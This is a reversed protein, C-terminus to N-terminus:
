KMGICFLHTHGRLYIRGDQFAPSTVCPEGLNSEALVKVGEPGPQVVWGKGEESIVYVSSGVLSPSSKFNTEFDHEWLKKGSKRDYCTLTGSSALLLLHEATALPSCIDPLGDEGTWLIGTATVDGRGDTRIASVQPFQNAVYVVGDRCTPSPGVDQRLCNARWIEKGDAPQYAIVWPDGCTIIQEGAPTQVVIPSAWSNPVPRPTEWVTKGTAGELAMLRSLNDRATGQDFQVVLRDRWTVLSSAHGYQNKPIGLSRAWVLQGQFDYAALDGNAFIAYVRQGDTAPTSAAYGTDESVEVKGKSASTAPVDQAWLLKGDTASFCFVQRKEATAGTLFVRDNWVVPSGHGPLPVPSKWLINEGSPGDWRSPVNTYASVGSGGPGRFCPWNKAYEQPSPLAAPSTPPTASAVKTAAGRAGSDASGESAASTPHMPPTSAGASAAQSSGTSAPNATAALQTGPAAAPRAAANGATSLSAPSDGEVSADRLAVESGDARQASELPSHFGLQVILAACALLAALSGIAWRAARSRASEFDVPEAATQPLPLKRRLTTAAKAAILLVVMGALLLWVGWAVFARQRFYEQRLRLDLLRIEEKLAENRPDEALRLKLQRFEPTELPDSAVRRSYDWGLLAAVALLFVVAVAVCGSAAQAWRDRAPTTHVIWPPRPTPAPESM